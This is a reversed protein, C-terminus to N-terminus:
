NMQFEEWKKTLENQNQSLIQMFDKLKKNEEEQEKLM